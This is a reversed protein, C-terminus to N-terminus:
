IEVIETGTAKNTTSLGSVASGVVLSTDGDWSGIVKDVDQGENVQMISVIVESLKHWDEIVIAREGLLERWKEIANQHNTMSTPTILHFVEWKDQCEALLETSSVDKEVGCNFFHKIQEKTIQPHCSEDGITFLYGKRNRIDIADCKTKNLAFWWVLSYSEGGNGGGNGEIYLKEIQKTIVTDAEFQTTQIPADDIYADGIGALLIHPDTIPKRDIIGEIIIGLGKKIIDTALYGMSGTEDVGIIVPTSNPNAKSDVSERVDFKSPNLDDHCGSTNTFIQQQSKSAVSTSYNRYSSASWNSSGM